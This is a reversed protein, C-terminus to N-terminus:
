ANMLGGDYKWTNTATCTAPNMVRQLKDTTMM